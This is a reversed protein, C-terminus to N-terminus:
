FVIKSLKNWHALDCGGDIITAHVHKGNLTGNFVARKDSAVIMPCMQGAKPKAFPNKLALLAQCAQAAHPHSGGATGGPGCRLTFHKSVQGQGNQVSVTLSTTPKAGSSGGASSSPAPTTGCAAIAATAAVALISHAAIARFRRGRLATSTNRKM